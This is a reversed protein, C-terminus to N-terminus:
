WLRVRRSDISRSVDDGIRRHGGVLDCKATIASAQLRDSGV